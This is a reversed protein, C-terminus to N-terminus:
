GNDLDESIKRLNDNLLSIIMNKGEESYLYHSSGSMEVTEVCNYKRLIRLTKKSVLEDDTAYFAFSKTSLNRMKKRTKRIGRLLSLFPRAWYVYSFPNQSLQVGCIESAHRITEDRIDDKKKFGVNIYTKLNSPKIWIKLPCNLLTIFPIKDKHRIAEEISLLTGLSHGVFVIKEYEGEHKEYLDEAQKQWMKMNSKGFQKSPLGHGALTPAVYSINPDLGDIIFQFFGPLEIIGHLFIVLVHKDDTIRELTYPEM